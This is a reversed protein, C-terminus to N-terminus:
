GVEYESSVGSIFEAAIAQGIKSGIAEVDDVHNLTANVTIPDVHVSMSGGGRSKSGNPTVTEGQHLPYVGDKPIYYSGRKLGFGSLLKQRQSEAMIGGIGMGSESIGEVTRPTYSIDINTLAILEKFKIMAVDMDSIMTKIPNEFMDEMYGILEPAIDKMLDYYDETAKVLKSYEDEYDETYENLLTKQWEFDERMDEIEEDRIDKLEYLKHKKMDFYKTINDMADRYGSDDTQKEKTYTKKMMDLRAKANSLQYKKMKIEEGRTLGHRKEMGKIQLELIKINNRKIIDNQTVLSHSLEDTAKKYNFVTMISSKLSDNYENIYNAGYKMAMNTYEQSRSLGTEELAVGIKWGSKGEFGPKYVDEVDRRLELITRSLNLLNTKHKDIVDDATDFAAIYDNFIPQLVGLETQLDEIKTVSLSTLGGVATMLRRVDLFGEDWDNKKDVLGFREISTGADELIKTLEKFEKSSESIVKLDDAGFAKLKQSLLEVANAKELMPDLTAEKEFYGLISNKNIPTDAVGSKQIRSWYSGSKQLGREVELLKLSSSRIKDIRDEVEKVAQAGGGFGGGSLATGWFLQAKKWWMDIDQWAEGIRRNLYEFSQAVMDVEMQASSMMKTLAEETRGASTKLLDLDKTFGSIGEDGALAMVVRLSRMNRILEPLIASGYETMANNLDIIFGELGNVQLALASMDVKYKRAASSAQQTPSAINQLTLALGRTAMDVHLGMRTVTSLAAAIEEFEVGVNAAIPTIYGMASALDEFRLKGRVVTQFLQDSIEDAQYVTKGYSNLISTFVDVSTAVDTLGAISAKTATNLLNIAESADFAASLIQYTGEALDDASQGYAKSLNEIGAQLQMVSTRADGSMITSVERIKKEFSRYSKLSEGVWKQLEQMAKQAVQIAGQMLIFSSAVGKLQTQAAATGTTKVGFNLIGQAM